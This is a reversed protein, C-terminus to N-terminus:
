EGYLKFFARSKVGEFKKVAIGKSHFLKDVEPMTYPEDFIVKSIGVEVIKNACLSCPYTTTYLIRNESSVGGIKSLKIIANEEAHLSRCVDLLKGPGGKSGPVFEEFVETGCRPCEYNPSIEEGCARCNKYYRSLEKKCNYCNYRPLKVELGCNPCFKLKLAHSEKLYNRYCQGFEEICTKQNYPVDNKGTSIVHGDETAIVAGVKRQLCSSGLSECYAMTMLKEDLSPRLEVSPGDEILKIWKSIMDQIFKRKKIKASSPIDKDNNIVIDSLFNCKSVQQGFPDNGKSDRDDDKDFASRDDKYIGKLRKFREDRPAYVSFLYFNPFRKLCLVEHDNRISDVIIKKPAPRLRDLKQIAEDALYARGYKRRLDDGIDQLRSKTINGPNEKKAMEHIPESLSIYTYDKTEEAVGRAIYTCGSGMSGTFGVIIVDAPFKNEKTKAPM